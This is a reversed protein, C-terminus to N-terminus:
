DAREISFSQLQLMAELGQSQRGLFALEFSVGGAQSLRLAMGVDLGANILTVGASPGISFSGTLAEPGSALGIAATAVDVEAYDTYGIGLGVGNIEMKVPVETKVGNLSDCSIV